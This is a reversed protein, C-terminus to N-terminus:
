FPQSYGQPGPNRNLYLYSGLAAFLIGFLAGAILSVFIGIVTAILSAGTNVMGGFQDGYIGALAGGLAIGLLGGVISALVLAAAAVAGVGLGIYLAYNFKSEATAFVNLRQTTLYAMLASGAPFVLFGCCPVFGTLVLVLWFAAAFPLAIRAAAKSLDFSPAQQSM